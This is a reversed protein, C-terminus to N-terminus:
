YDTTPVRAPVVSYACEVGHGHVRARARHYMGEEGEKEKEKEGEKEKELRGEKGEGGEM